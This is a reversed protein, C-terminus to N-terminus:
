SKGSGVRSGGSRQRLKPLEHGPCLTDLLLEVVATADLGKAGSGRRRPKPLMLHTKGAEVARVDTFANLWAGGLPRAPDHRVLLREGEINQVAHVSLQMLAHKILFIRLLTETPEPLHGFRDSLDERIRHTEAPTTAADMERLIELRQRPDRILDDPLFAKVRLDVDVERPAEVEVRRKPADDTAPEERAREVAGRLLECYMEYGVAGIHGSQQPGLLNGAGRIELDKMAIQFGAGLRSLEELARLRKRSAEPPPHLRDIMLYCYAKESSRGVRGRLQHLEALGFMEARDILITNARAIDLGNEVISTCVLVEVEGRTFSRLTKELQTETLQGHGIAVKAHPLLERIRNALPELGAIRDHLVFVQGDRRLEHGIADQLLEDSRYLLKTEVDQRGEPPTALTSVTRIGLLSAHLTRPIPTASMSLVDIDTRLQKLREKQRVGFRQEEDIVLLGLDQFGVDDSLIRHTGVLVDVKGLKADALVEKRQKPKNFRSLVEVRLGLPEFRAAFTQRHQEALVTTPALVAVQRGSIAVKFAARMAVETKGFGVDGCLLRDMPRDQELETRIANWAESQDETDQFPFSDLLDDELPDRAYAERRVNDREIQLQLLDSALDFLAAEVDQKRKQFGKGGLKDLKPQPGGAGVYKQVLHIKSVPVLLRLEDKFCLRLHDEEAEGRVVREIGEFRSIGHVAHVVLDGPGLEFFSKLARSEIQQKQPRARVPAPVGVFETNSLVTWSLEPVRFGRHLSGTGLRISDRDLDVGKHEFIERLRDRESDSRCIIDVQDKQVGRIAQLRGFPDHEGSGVASGASLIKYDLDQSPLASVELSTAPHLTEQFAVLRDRFESGGTKVLRQRREDIRLPEFYVVVLDRRFLYSIVQSRGASPSESRTDSGLLLVVEDRRDLSRQSSPEFTRISECEDDFFEVRFAEASLMPYIDLVDGRRSVEGPNVVVPVERLGAERCRDHLDGIGLREGARVVTRGEQLSSLDPAVQVMSQLTALCLWDSDGDPGANREVLERLALAREGERGPEPEGDVDVLGTPFLVAGSEGFARLDDRLTESDEDTGTICLIPRRAGKRVAALLM